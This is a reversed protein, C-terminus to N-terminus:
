VLVCGRGHGRIAVLVECVLIGDSGNSVGRDWKGLLVGSSGGDSPGDGNDIKGGELGETGCGGYKTRSRDGGRQRGGIDGVHEPLELDMGRGRECGIALM